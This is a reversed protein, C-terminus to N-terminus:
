TSRESVMQRRLVEELNRHLNLAFTNKEMMDGAVQQKM